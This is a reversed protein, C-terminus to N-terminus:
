PRPVRYGVQPETYIYRPNRADDGLKRRLNRVFSRILETEGTYEPGWVRQLIQDHTLVLGAHTVLEYLLKYETASLSIPQGKVVVRREGFNITLDGLTFPPRVEIQDPLVRRRLTAEIRALLETPSFPKTVYDDAGLRLALTANDTENSATLFIVPVGSLERIRQLLDLGTTGPLVLDLIVLDPEESEVLGIVQTPDGTTIAHYGAEEFSRKLYRLIQPDDDVVLIRAREGARRIRGMHRDRRSTEAVQSAPIQSAVPLTFSLTTGLSEGSSHAWIRGGHAEVIGKAIALGLGSGGLKRGQDEHVQSFKKFLHSLKDAPIGQGQDRVHVTVYTDAQEISVTIPATPPSFKSANSLLNAIVQGVRRRDVNVPPLQDPYSLQVDQSAGSRAFTAKAEELVEELQLPEPSVSLAGAEIRTMDLINDILERLRDSQEDIIKFLELTEEPGFPRKSGLVMAASGKIATLPTKLEHSVMGLFDSRLREVEELPTMDQIIAIAGSIQGDPTYLPTANLLTPISHGDTFEFRVEEARVNEGNYLARQLPLDRVEYVTGDPRKHTAAQEYRELRDDPQHSLGLIREAEQNVLTVQGGADVVFVGIPCTHVLVELRKREQEIQRQAEKVSTIDRFRVVAGLLAGAKDRIPSASCLIPMDEGDPRHILYEEGPIVEGQLARSLPNAKLAVAKGDPTSFRGDLPKIGDIPSFVCDLMEEARSNAQVQGTDADVYIMGNPSDNLIADLRLRENEVQQHLQANHIAMAVQAAFLVLLEEDESTFQQGRAKETLYLNGLVEDGWHIPAGLFSKMTPHNAPFAVSNPHKALDSLRLPQQLDNLFGLIGLGAPPDGIAKRQKPTVGHTQFQTVHGSSDFVALAGYRAGTLECAADVTEQLVTSLDLSSAVRNGLRSLLSLRGLLM